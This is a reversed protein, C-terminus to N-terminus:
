CSTLIISGYGFLSDAVMVGYILNDGIEQMDGDFILKGDTFRIRRGTFIGPFSKEKAGAASWCTSIM